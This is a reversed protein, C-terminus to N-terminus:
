DTPKVSIQMNFNVSPDDYRGLKQAQVQAKTYVACKTSGVHYLYPHLEKPMGDLIGSLTNYRVQDTNWGYDHWVIVSQDDRLLKLANKTDSEISEKSHDADIFVLDFQGHLHTFDYTQTNGFIMNINPQDKLYYGQCAVIEEAMGFARMDDPGLTIGTCQKAVQAMNALTEGRWTGMELYSCNEYQRAMAMLFSLDSILTTGEMFSYHKVEEKIEGTLQTITIDPLRELGYKKRVYTKTYRADEGSAELVKYLSSPQKMVQRAIRMFAKIRSSSM